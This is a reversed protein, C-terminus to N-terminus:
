RGPRHRGGQAAPRARGLHRGHDPRPVARRRRGAGTPRAALVAWVAVGDKVPLLASLQAMVDPAPRLTVRRDAEARRRREVFSAPDLEYAPRASGGVLEGDGMAELVDLDGAVRRDM